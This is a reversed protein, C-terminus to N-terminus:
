DPSTVGTAADDSRVDAHPPEVVAAVGRWVLDYALEAMTSASLERHAQWWSSLRELTGYIAHAVAEDLAARPLGDRAPAAPALAVFSAIQRLATARARDLAAALEPDAPADQFLIRWGDPNAEVWAFFDEFLARALPAGVPAARPRQQHDHLAQAHHDVLAAYLARKSAFHDYLVPTTVGALQAISRMSAGAYGVGAFEAAAAALVVARRDASSM